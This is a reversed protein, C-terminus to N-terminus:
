ALTLLITRTLKCVLDIKEKFEYIFKTIEYEKSVNIYSDSCNSYKKWDEKEIMKNLSGILRSEM